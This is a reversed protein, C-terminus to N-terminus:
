RQPTNRCFDVIAQAVEEGKDEQLFHGAGRITVHPQGRAGPVLKQFIAEGGAMIPDGDSFTTLLPKTWQRLMQWAALNAPVAPDDPTTPVLMPFARAGAQFSPDPFPADYAAAVAPSIGAVTGKHVIKGAQFDAVTQSYDRWRFFAPNIPATGNPLDTNGVVVRAVRDAMETVVRLGILGGWDQGFLTIGSLDLQALFDKTLDVHLAYSYDERRPLKDSRGFGVFDPAVARFGAAALVPIMTRYLFCWTPEGHLLVIVEGDRPGEDLYHLRLGRVSLYNPAFPFGPLDGFREDPTRLATM